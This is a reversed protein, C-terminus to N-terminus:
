EVPGFRFAARVQVPKWAYRGAYNVGVREVCDTAHQEIQFRAADMIETTTDGYQNTIIGCLYVPEVAYGNPLKTERSAALVWFPSGIFDGTDPWSPQGSKQICDIAWRLYVSADMTEELAHQLRDQLAAPNDAVSQGYKEIGAAARERHFAILGEVIPDACPEQVSLKGTILLAALRGSDVAPNRPESM